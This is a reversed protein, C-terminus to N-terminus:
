YGLNLKKVKEESMEELEDKSIGECLYSADGVFDYFKMNENDDEKYYIVSWVSLPIDDWNTKKTM